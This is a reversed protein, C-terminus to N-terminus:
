LSSSELRGGRPRGRGRPKLSNETAAAQEALFRTDEDEPYLIFRGYRVSRPGYKKKRWRRLTSLSIGIVAAQQQETRYGPISPKALM